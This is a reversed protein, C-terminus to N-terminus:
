LRPHAYEPFQYHTRLQRHSQDYRPCHSVPSQPSRRHNRVPTRYASRLLPDELYNELTKSQTFQVILAAAQRIDELLKSSELLM